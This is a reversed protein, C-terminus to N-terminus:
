HQPHPGVPRRPPEPERSERAPSPRPQGHGVFTDMSRAIGFFTTLADFWSVPVLRVLWTVRVFRPLILRRNNRQIARVIRDAVYEPKLIPLVSRFRTKVGAFMGTDVYYPCVVLTRVHSHLKRLELRLAEDLAFVAAKSASYDALRPVACIAAASAITVVHGSDNRLMDPLFARLTWFHALTNVGFTRTVDAPELSTLPKGAVIGANNVLIDVPGQRSTAEAAARRVADPDSVDVVAWDVRAGSSSGIRSATDELARGDVDWLTLNAGAVAIREAVLQGMGRAAGTILVHKEQFDTMAPFDTCLAHRKASSTTPAGDDVVELDIDQTVDAQPLVEPRRVFPTHGSTHDSFPGPGHISCFAVLQWGTAVTGGAMFIQARATIAPAGCACRRRQRTVERIGESLRVVCERQFAHFEHPM